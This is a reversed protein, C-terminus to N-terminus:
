GQQTAVRELVPRQDPCYTDVSAGLFQWAQATTSHQPLNKMLFETSKYADADIGRGLRECTIKGLWANHDRQGYIGYTHLLNAFDTDVDARAPAAFALAMAAVVTALRVLKM